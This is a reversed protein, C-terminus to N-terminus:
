KESFLRLQQSELSCQVVPVELKQLLKEVQPLTSDHTCITVDKTRTALLIRVCEYQEAPKLTKMCITIPVDKYM